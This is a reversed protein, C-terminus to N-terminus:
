KKLSFLKNNLCLNIFAECEEYDLDNSFGYLGKPHNKKDYINM